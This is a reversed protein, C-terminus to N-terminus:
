AKGKYKNARAHNVHNVHQRAIAHKQLERKKENERTQKKPNIEPLRREATDAETRRVPNNHKSL